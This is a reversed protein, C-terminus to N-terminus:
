STQLHPKLNTLSDENHVHDDPKHRRRRCFLEDPRHHVRLPGHLFLHLYQVREQRSAHIRFIDGIQLLAVLGHKGVVHITVPEIVSVPHVM